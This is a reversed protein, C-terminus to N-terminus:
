GLDDVTYSIFLKTAAEENGTIPIDEPLQDIDPRASFHQLARQDGPSGDFM